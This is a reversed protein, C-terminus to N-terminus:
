DRRTGKRILDCLHRLSTLAAKESCPPKVCRRLHRYKYTPISAIVHVGPKWINGKKGRSYLREKM